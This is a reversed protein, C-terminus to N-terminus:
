KKEEQSNFDIMEQICAPLPTEPKIRISHKERIIRANNFHLDMGAETYTDDTSLGKSIEEEYLEFHKKSSWASDPDSPIVIYGFPVKGSRVQEM